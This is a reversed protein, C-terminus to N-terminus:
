SREVSDVRMVFRKYNVDQTVKRGVRVRFAEILLDVEYSSLAIQMMNLVAAFQTTTVRCNNAHDFDQFYPKPHLRKQAKLVL